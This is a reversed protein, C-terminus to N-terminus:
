KFHKFLRDMDTGYAQLMEFTSFAKKFCMISYSDSSEPYRIQKKADQIIEEYKQALLGFDPNSVKTHMQLKLFVKQM